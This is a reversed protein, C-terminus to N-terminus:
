NKYYLIRDANEPDPPTDDSGILPKMGLKDRAIGDMRSPNELTSKMTRLLLPIKLEKAEEAVKLTIKSGIREGTKQKEPVVGFESMYFVTQDEGVLQAILDRNEQTTSKYKSEAFERGTMEYGWGFAVIKDDEKAVMAIANPKKIEGRVYGTTRIIPYAEELKGCGCPCITGVQNEPGYFNGCKPGRSVERWPDGSFTWRYAVATNMIGQLNEKNLREFEIM